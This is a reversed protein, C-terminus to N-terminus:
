ETMRARLTRIATHLLFGVNGVSLGTVEAIEKYSLGAGFKLRVVERQNEPLDALLADARTADDRRDVLAEPGPEVSERTEITAETLAQMRSEKRRVDLARRRCVTFLWAAVHNGNLEAREMCLRVFTEQVVDRATEVDGTIRLAYSVLPSEYRKLLTAIWASRDPGDPKAM